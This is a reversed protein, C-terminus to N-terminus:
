VKHSGVRPPCCKRFFLTTHTFSLRYRPNRPLVACLRLPPFVALATDGASLGFCLLCVMFFFRNNMPSSTWAFVMVM